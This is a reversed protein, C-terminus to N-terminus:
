CYGKTNRHDMMYIPGKYCLLKLQQQMFNNIYDPIAKTKSSSAAIFTFGLFKIFVCETYVYRRLAVLFSDKREPRQIFLFSNAV